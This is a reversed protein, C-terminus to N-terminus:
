GRNPQRRSSLLFHREDTVFPRPDRRQRRRRRQTQRRPLRGNFTTVVIGRGGDRHPRFWKQPSPKVRRWLSLSLSLSLRSRRISLLIFWLFQRFPSFLFSVTTLPPYSCHISQSHIPVNELSQVWSLEYILFKIRFGEGEGSIAYGSNNRRKNKNRQAECTSFSQSDLRIEERDIWRGM